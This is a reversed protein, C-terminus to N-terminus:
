SPVHSVESPPLNSDSPAVLSKGDASVTFEYTGQVSMGISVDHPDEDPRIFCCSAYHEIFRDISTDCIQDEDVCWFWNANPPTGGMSVPGAEGTFLDPTESCRFPTVRKGGPAIVVTVYGLFESRFFAATEDPQYVFGAIKDELGGEVPTLYEQPTALGDPMNEDVMHTPWWQIKTTQSM